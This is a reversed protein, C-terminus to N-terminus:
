TAFTKGPPMSPARPSPRASTGAVITATCPTGRARLPRAEPTSLVERKMPAASPRATSLVSAALWVDDSISM